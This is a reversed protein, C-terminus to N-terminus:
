AEKRVRAEDIARGLFLVLEDLKFPKTLYHYAGRRISEVATDVAGYATMVIVPRAPQSRQSAALVELGDVEPMRLDPVVADFSQNSLRSVADRSSAVPVADYGHDGLGDALTEAMELKDDVILVRPRSDPSPMNSRARSTSWPVRVM